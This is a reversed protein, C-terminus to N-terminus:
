ALLGRAIWLGAFVALISLVVSALVYGFAQVLDGREYLTAFELSFASFTTYGGLIGTVLFTRLENSANYRLALVEILVGILFSGSINIVLTAWPFNVLGQHMFARGILHRLGAGIAGGSSALLLLKM